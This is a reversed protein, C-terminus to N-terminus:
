ASAVQITKVFVTSEGGKLLVAKRLASKGHSTGNLELLHLKEQRFLQMQERQKLKSGHSIEELTFVADTAILLGIGKAFVVQVASKGQYPAISFESACGGASRTSPYIYIRGILLIDVPLPLTLEQRLRVIGLCDAAKCGCRRSNASRLRLGSPLRPATSCVATRM